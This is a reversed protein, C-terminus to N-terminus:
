TQFENQNGHQCRRQHQHADDAADVDMIIQPNVAIGPFHQFQEGPPSSFEGVTGGARLLIARCRCPLPRWGGAPMFIQRRFGRELRPIEGDRQVSGTM